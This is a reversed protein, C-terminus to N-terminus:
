YSLDILSPLIKHLGETIENPDAPTEGQIIARVYVEGRRM